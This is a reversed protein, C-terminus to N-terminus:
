KTYCWITCNRSSELMVKNFHAELYDLISQQIKTDAEFSGKIRTVYVKSCKEIFRVQNLITAGGILIGHKPITESFVINDNKIPGHNLRTLIYFPRSDKEKFPLTKYTKRGMVLQKGKTVSIFHEMDQQIHPWPLAGAKGFGLDDDIAFIAEM